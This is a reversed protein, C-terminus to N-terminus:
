ILFQFCRLNKWSIELVRWLHHTSEVYVRWKKAIKIRIKSRFFFDIVRFSRFSNRLIKIKLSKTNIKNLCISYEFYIYLVFLFTFWFKLLEVYKFIGKSSNIMLILNLYLFSNKFFISFFFDFWSAKNWMKGVFFAMVVLRNEFVNVSQQKWDFYTRICWQTACKSHFIMRIQM